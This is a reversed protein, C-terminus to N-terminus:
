GESLDVLSFLQEEARTLRVMIEALEQPTIIV